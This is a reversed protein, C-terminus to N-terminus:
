RCLEFALGEEGEVAQFGECVWMTGVAALEGGLHLMPIRDREWPPVGFEQMLKKVAHTHERGVPRCVEGGHRFKVQIGEKLCLNARLGKGTVSLARLSCSLGPISLPGRCDWDLVQTADHASLPKMAFLIDRYRRVEVGQWHVTPSADPAADLVDELVREMQATTPLPLNLEHLWARLCNRIRSETLFKLSSVSLQGTQQLRVNQLDTRAVEDLIRSAEASHVASRSITAAAAPWRSKLSPMIEHRIFNRDFRTDINSSDEIWELSQQQAFDLLEERTFQLLPRAHWGQGFSTEVPMAALGRPGSGRLLQLLVTEAQDDQHHATLLCNGTQIFSEMAQYRADRAAAEPSEGAKPQADVNITEIPISLAKCISMCHAQWKDADAHLGHHVHLALIEIDPIESRVVSLAQLLVHSDMGGSYAVWFRRVGVLTKQIENLQAILKEPSFAM